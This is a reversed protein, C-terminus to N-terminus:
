AMMAAEDLARNIERVLQAANVPKSFWRDVGRPGVDVGLEDRNAGSVAFLMLGRLQPERRISSITKPGDLRPLCMDLLVADPRKGQKLYSLAKLGDGVTDVEYGCMRLYSALLEAENTNDEVILAHRVRSSTCEQTSTSSYLQADIQQLEELAKAILGDADDVDNPGGLSLRRHLVHLSLSVANIRNRLEHRLERSIAPLSGELGAKLQAVEERLVLIEPPAEIGIRVVKGAVRVVQISIGLQPFVVKENPRRALVLM